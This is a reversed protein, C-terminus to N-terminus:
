EVVEKLKRERESLKAKGTKVEVFVIESPEGEAIGKFVVFDVPSGIFRAETPDHKFGPLYPAIQETFQGGLVARSKKIADDRLRKEYDKLWLAFRARYYLAGIAIGLILAVAFGIIVLPDM